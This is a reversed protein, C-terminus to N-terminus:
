NQSMARVVRMGDSKRIGVHIKGSGGEALYKGVTYDDARLKATKVESYDPQNVKTKSGSIIGGM